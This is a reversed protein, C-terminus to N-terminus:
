NTSQRNFPTSFIKHGREDTTKRQSSRLRALYVRPLSAFVPRRPCTSQLIRDIAKGSRFATPQSNARFRHCARRAPGTLIGRCRSLHPLERLHQGTSGRIAALHWRLNFNKFREKLVVLDIARSDRPSCKVGGNENPQPNFRSALAETPDANPAASLLCEKGLLQDGAHFNRIASAPRRNDNSQCDEMGLQVSAVANKLLNSMSNEKRIKGERLHPAFKPDFVRAKHFLLTLSLRSRCARRQKERSFHRSLHFQGEIAPFIPM